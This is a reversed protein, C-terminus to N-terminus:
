PDTRLPEPHSTQRPRRDSGGPRRGSHLSPPTGAPSDERSRPDSRSSGCRPRPRASCPGAWGPFWGPARWRVQWLHARPGSLDRGEQGGDGSSTWWVDVHVPASTEKRDPGRTRRTPPRPLFSPRTSTYRWPSQPLMQSEPQFSRFAATTQLCSPCLNLVIIGSCFGSVDCLM